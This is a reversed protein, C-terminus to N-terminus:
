NWEEPVFLRKYVNIAYRDTMCAIWDAVVRESGDAEANALFEEPLQEMHTMYYAFLSRVVHKAKGEERKASLNFYVHSFMFDRLEEFAREMESSMHVQPQLFSHEVVDIIMSNIRAGHTAGVVRVCEDPLQDPSIVHARVADDIDHNIYAIRDSISM